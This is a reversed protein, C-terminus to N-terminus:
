INRQEKLYLGCWEMACLSGTTVTDSVKVSGQAQFAWVIHGSLIGLNGYSGPRKPWYSGTGAGWSCGM